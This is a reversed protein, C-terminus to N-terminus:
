PSAEEADDSCLLTATLEELRTELRADLKGFGTELVCGGPTIEDSPQLEIEAQEFLHAIPAGRVRTIDDPHLQISFVKRGEAEDLLRAIIEAIAEPNARLECMVVQRAVALSLRLADHHLRQMVAQHEDKYRKVAQAVGHIVRSLDQDVLRKGEALGKEYAEHSIREVDAQSLGAGSMPTLGHGDGPKTAVPQLPEYIHARAEVHSPYVCATNM